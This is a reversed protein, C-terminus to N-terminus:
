VSPKVIDLVAKHVPWFVNEDNLKLSAAKESRAFFLNSACVERTSADFGKGIIAHCLEKVRKQILHSGPDKHDWCEDLYANSSANSWNQIEDKLSPNKDMDVDPNYGLLYFDDKRLTAIDSYLFRGPADLIKDPLSFLAKYLGPHQSALPNTTHQGMKKDKM